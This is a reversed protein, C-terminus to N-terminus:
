AKHNKVMDDVDLEVELVPSDVVTSFHSNKVPGHDVANRLCYLARGVINAMTVPGFTRSDYAEKPKLKNNDALVWCQDKELVFSEDNADNSGMEYGEIAALRRVLYNASDEPDKLVVVDGVHVRTPNPAPIKRVLLTGGQTGVTPDMEEGKNWHLFTLRGHLFNKWITDLIEKDAIQGRLYSKALNVGGVSTEKSFASQLEFAYELSGYRYGVPGESVIHFGSSAM